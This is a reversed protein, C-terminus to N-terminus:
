GMDRILQDLFQTYPKLINRKLWEVIRSPRKKTKAHEIELVRWYDLTAAINPHTSSKIARDLRDGPFYLPCNPIQKPLNKPLEKPTLRPQQLDISFRKGKKVRLGLSFVEMQDYIQNQRIALYYCSHTRLFEEAPRLIRKNYRKDDLLWVVEYGATRYDAIRHKAEGPTMPSCQIEFIIKEKEWCLDAVRNISLFTREMQLADAPFSKQLQIQALLHDETKSYLRCRPSSRLHYFHPFRHKGRRAKVPLFCEICYYIKGAEAANAHLIDDDDFAFLAM